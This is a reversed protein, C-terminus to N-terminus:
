DKSRKCYYEIVVYANTSGLPSSGRHLINFMNCQYRFMAILIWINEFSTVRQATTRLAGFCGRSNFIIAEM